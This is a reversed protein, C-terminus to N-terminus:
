TEGGYTGYATSIEDEKIQEGSYYKNLSGM